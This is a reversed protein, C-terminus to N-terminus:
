ESFEDFSTRQPSPSFAGTNPTKELVVIREELERIQKNKKYLAAKLIIGYYLTAILGVVLGLGLAGIVYWYLPISATHYTFIMASVPQKFPAQSFTVIVIFALCFACLFLVIWKILGMTM